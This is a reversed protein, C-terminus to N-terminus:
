KRELKEVIRYRKTITKHSRHVVVKFCEGKRSEAEMALLKRGLPSDSSFSFAEEDLASLGDVAEELVMRQHSADGYGGPNQTSPKVMTKLPVIHDIRTMLKTELNELVYRYKNLANKM